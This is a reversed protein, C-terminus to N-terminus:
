WDGDFGIFGTLLFISYYRKKELLSCWEWTSTLRGDICSGADFYSGAGSGDFAHRFFDRLIERRLSEVGGFKNDVYYSLDPDEVLKPIQELTNCVPLFIRYIQSYKEIFMLANPVSDDAMHVASSGVWSGVNKEANAVIIHMMRTTKPADQMRNLGQGTDCLRYPVRESLLDEDVLTWLRFMDNLIERWLTMSQIVYAYQKEHDHSLRAGDTGDEIALSSQEDLVETPHFYRELYEIMKECPGSNVRLYGCNDAISYLCQRIREQNLGEREYRSALTALAIDKADREALIEEMSRGEAVIAKTATPVLDDRLLELADHEELVSYVTIIPKICSLELLEKVEATQSDQLLYMLKGYTTRMKDPNMIKHRRGIEFIQQFFNENAKFDRDAILAQGQKYNLSVVLGSMTACLERIQHVIRKAKPSSESEPEIDVKETYESVNLAAEVLHLYKREDETLRMPIYKSREVFWERPASNLEKAPTTILAIQALAREVEVCFHDSSRKEGGRMNVDSTMDGHPGPTSIENSKSYLFTPVHARRAGKRHLVAFCVECFRDTCTECLLQAPQDECEACLEALPHSADDENHKNNSSVRALSNINGDLISHLSLDPVDVKARDNVSAM